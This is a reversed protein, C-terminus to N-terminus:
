TLVWTTLPLPAMTLLSPTLAAFYTIFLGIIMTPFLSATATNSDNNLINFLSFVGLAAFSFLQMLPSTDGTLILFHTWSVVDNQLLYQSLHSTLPLTNILSFVTVFTVVAGIICLVKRVSINATHHNPSKQTQELFYYTMPALILCSIVRIPAYIDLISMLNVHFVETLGITITQALTASLGWAIILSLTCYLFAHIPRSTNGNNAINNQQFPLALSENDSFYDNIYQKTTDDAATNFAYQTIRKPYELVLEGDSLNNKLLSVCCTIIPDNLILSQIFQHKDFEDPRNSYPKPKLWMNPHKLQNILLYEKFTNYQENDIQNTRIIVAVRQQLYRQILLSFLTNQEQLPQSANDKAIAKFQHYLSLVANPTMLYQITQAFYQTISSTLGLTTLIMATQAWPSFVPIFLCSIGLCSFYALLWFLLFLGYYQLTTIQSKIKINM